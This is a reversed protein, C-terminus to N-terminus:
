GFIRKAEQVPCRYIPCMRLSPVCDACACRHGCPMLALVPEAILCVVCETKAEELSEKM